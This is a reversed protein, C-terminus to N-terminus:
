YILWFSVVCYLSARYISNSTIIDRTVSIIRTLVNALMLSTVVYHSLYSWVLGPLDTRLHM